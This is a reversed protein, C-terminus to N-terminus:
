QKNRREQNKREQEAKQREFDVPAEGTSSGTMFRTDGYTWYATFAQAVGKYTEAVKKLKNTMGVYYDGSPIHLSVYKTSDSPPSSQAVDFFGKGELEIIFIEMEHNSLRSVEGKELRSPDTKINIEQNIIALRRAPGSRGQKQVWFCKIADGDKVRNTTPAGCASLLFAGLLLLLYRHLKHGM